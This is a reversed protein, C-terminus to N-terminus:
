MGELPVGGGHFFDAFQRNAFLCRMGRDGHFILAPVNEAIRRLQTREEALSEGLRKVEALREEYTGVIYLTLLCVGVAVVARPLWVLLPPLLQPPGTQGLVALVLSFLVVLVTVAIAHRRGLLWGALMIGLPMAALQPTHLGGGSVLTHAAIAAWGGYVLLRAAATEQRLRILFLCLGALCLILLPGVAQLPHAPLVIFLAFLFALPGAVLLWCILRLVARKSAEILVPEASPKEAPPNM